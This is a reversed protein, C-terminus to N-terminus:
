PTSDGRIATMLTHNTLEEAASRGEVDGTGFKVWEPRGVATVLQEAFPDHFLADPRRNEAARMATVGVSTVIDWGADETRM